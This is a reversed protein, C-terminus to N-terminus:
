DLELRAGGPSSFVTSKRGSRLRGLDGLPIQIMPLSAHYLDKAVLAGILLIPDPECLVIAAPHIGLRVSELLISSSSSSGRGGPMVLIRGAIRQGFQAHNVDSVCGSDLDFGGWLSLPETLVVLKGQAEGPVLCKAMLHRLKSM